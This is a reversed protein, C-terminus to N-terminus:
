VYFLYIFMVAIIMFIITLIGGAKIYDKNHYGGPTMLLANVQHTPLVFSNSACVGVLLALARPNIGTQQGMIMVLPVLVVTAAVNSMFLTFLTSLIAVAFLLLIPHSGQLMVMMQNAIYNAAGTKDMAIGLPILGSLLFVTKWDVAKYIENVPIVGSLIMILAGTFLSLSLKFGLLVLILAVVFSIIAFVPKSSIGDKEELHTVLVFNNDEQFAQLNEILGYVIMADGSELKIDSFDGKIQKDGRLLIVPNSNFNKRLAIERLTKGAIESRPPIIIEAFGSNKLLKSEKFKETEKEYNLGYQEAFSKVNKEKGLLMLQQGAAFRTYRWPAYSIDDKERLALLNLSFDIWLRSSECSEGILNSTEPIDCYHVATPLEWSEILNEQTNNSEEKDGSRSPLIYKGFIVFYLIGCILLIFGLPTVSFLNFPEENGQRLLDNLIILPGSAVMTLTGGLIASFGIPMLLRSLSINIKKSIRRIAPLFLATAGINQMFASTIGVSASVVAILRKESSGAFNIIPKTLKKMVGSRDIGYGLIMVAIISIVANSAFGSFIEMPEVLGLWALSIMITISIIDVRFAETVFLIITVLLVLLTLLIEPTM